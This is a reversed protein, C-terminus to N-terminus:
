VTAAFSEAEKIGAGKIWETRSKQEGEREAKEPAWAGRFYRRAFSRRRRIFRDKWVVPAGCIEAVVSLWGKKREKLSKSQRRERGMLLRKEKLEEKRRLGGRTQKTKMLLLALDLRRGRGLCARRGEFQAAGGSVSVLCESPRGKERKWEAEIEVSPWFRALWRLSWVHM